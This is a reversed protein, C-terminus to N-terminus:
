LDESFAMQSLLAFFDIRQQYISEHSIAPDGCERHLWGSIQQPTWGMTLSSTVIERLESCLQRQSVRLRRAWYLCAATDPKYAANM